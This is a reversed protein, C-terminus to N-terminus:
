PTHVEKAELIIKQLYDVLLERIDELKVQRADIGAATILDLLEQRILEAPLGTASTLQDLLDNKEM